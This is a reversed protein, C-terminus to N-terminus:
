SCDITEPDREHSASPHDERFLCNFFSLLHSMCTSRTIQRSVIHVVGADGGAGPALMGGKIGWDQDM